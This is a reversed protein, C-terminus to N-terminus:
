KKEQEIFINLYHNKMMVILGDKVTITDSNLYKMDKFEYGLENMWIEKIVPDTKAKVEYWHEDESVETEYSDSWEKITSIDSKGSCWGGCTLRYHITTLELRDICFAISIETDEDIKCEVIYFLNNSNDKDFKPSKIKSM